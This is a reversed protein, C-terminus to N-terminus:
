KIAFYFKRAAFISFYINKQWPLPRGSKFKICKELWSHGRRTEQGAPNYVWVVEYFYEVNLVIQEMM